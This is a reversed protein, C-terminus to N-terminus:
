SFSFGITASSINSSPTIKTKLLSAHLIPCRREIETKWRFGSFLRTLSSRMCFWKRSLRVKLDFWAPVVMPGATCLCGMGGQVAEEDPLGRCRGSQDWCLVDVVVLMGLSCDQTDRRRRATPCGPDMGLAWMGHDLKRKYSTLSRAWFRSAHRWHLISAQCVCLIGEHCAPSKAPRDTRFHFPSWSNQLLRPTHFSRSPRSSSGAFIHTDSQPASSFRGIRHVACPLHANLADAIFQDHFCPIHQPSLLAGRIICCSLRDVYSVPLTANALVSRSSSFAFRSSPLPSGCFICKNPTIDKNKLHPTLLHVFSATRSLKFSLSPPV